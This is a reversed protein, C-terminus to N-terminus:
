RTWIMGWLEKRESIAIKILESQFDQLKLYKDPRKLYEDGIVYGFENYGVSSLHNSIKIVSDLEEEVWEWCINDVKYLFNKLVEYEFGEVDIKILDPLGYELILSNLSITKIKVPKDYKHSSFRSKEMWDISCTSIVDSDSYQIGVYFDLEDNDKSSCAKNVITFSNDNKYKIELENVLKKNAEVIVINSNPYELKCKDSFLGRNAGIDYIFMKKTKIYFADGWTGGRWDSEVRKFGYQSLFSDMEDIKACNEYVEDRNVETFIYDINKLTEKSGKLVELEYGQVDIHLFNYLNEKPFDDLKIMDVEVDEDFTIWPFQVSHLASKLISSSQGDNAKDIHITIKKNDNGVAANVLIGDIVNTKLM